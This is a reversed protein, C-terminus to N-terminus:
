LSRLVQRRIRAKSDILSGRQPRPPLPSLGRAFSDFRGFPRSSPGGSRSSIHRFKLRRRLPQNPPLPPPLM